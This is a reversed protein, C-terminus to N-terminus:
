SRLGFHKKLQPENGIHTAEIILLDKNPIDFLDRIIAIEDECQYPFVFVSKQLTYFGWEYFKQRIADRAKKHKESIDSFIIRLKRDWRRPMKPAIDDMQYELLKKRGADTLEIEIIGTSKQRYGVLRRRQLRDVALRAKRASWDKKIGKLLRRTGAPSSLVFYLAVGTGLAILVDRGIRKIKKKTFRNINVISILNAM